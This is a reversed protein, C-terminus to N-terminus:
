SAADEKAREMAAAHLLKVKEEQEKRLAEDEAKRAEEREKQQQPSFIQFGAEEHVITTQLKEAAMRDAMEPTIDEPERNDKYVILDGDKLRGWNALKAEGKPQPDWKLTPLNTLDKLLYAFPKVVYVDEPEAASLPEEAGELPSALKKDNVSALLAARLDAIAGTRLVGVEEVESLVKSVPSWHRARLLMHESTFVEPGSTIQIAIMKGDAIKTGFVEALISDDTMVAGLKVKTMVGTTQATRLRMREPPPVGHSEGFQAHLAAKVDPISMAENLVFPGLPVVEGDLEPCFKCNFQWEGVEMPKGLKIHITHGEELGHLMVAMDLDKYEQGGAGRRLKFESPAMELQAAILDKLEGLPKRQDVQVESKRGNLALEDEQMGKVMAAVGADVSPPAPPLAGGTCGTASALADAATRPDNFNITIM